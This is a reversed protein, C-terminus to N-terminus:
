GIAGPQVHAKEPAAPAFARACAVICLAVAVLVAFGVRLNWVEGIIGVLPAGLVFGVYNGVNVRAVAIGTGAPDHEAAAVFALPLIPSIGVGVVAFGAIAFLSTPAVAVMVLGAATLTGAGAIVMPAGTRIVIRDTVSRGVLLCVAYAAYALAAVSESAGLVDTLDLASWNSVSSDIVFAAVVAAFFVLLPRWPVSSTALPDPGASDATASRVYGRSAILGIPILVAAIAAFFAVLPGSTGAAVSALLAGLIAALSWWAHFSAMVSRRLLAQVAIGQMNMTADVSGLGVGLAVLAAVLTPVTPAAGVAVLATAVLVACWRLLRRSGFRVSLAGAAVSGLGAVIPVVALLLALQGESFGFRDALAPIRTVLAAFAFGQCFFATSVAARPTMPSRPLLRQAPGLM